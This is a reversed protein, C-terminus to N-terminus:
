RKDFRERQEASDRLIMRLTDRDECAIARRLRRFQDSFLDMQRLLESRNLLFLESWMEDNIRAIRTLDRFSDVTYEVFHDSDRCTMLAVAICHTLQSLFAIMEDHQEPSLVSVSSCGLMKGLESCVRIEEPTNRDTPTVLYNANRFIEGSAYRIGSRERGAMPHAGIFSLGERLMDQIQYVVPCKVGTVDTLLAGDRLMGQNTRVWETVIHPYLALVVLDFRSLYEADPETRGSGIWGKELAFALAEPDPDVAGIEISCGSLAAAYSGGILGLGAILIRCNRDLQKM